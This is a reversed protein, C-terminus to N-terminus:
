PGFWFKKYFFEYLEHWYLVKMVYFNCYYDNCFTLFPNHVAAVMVIIHALWNRQLPAMDVKRSIFDSGAKPIPLPDYPVLPTTQYLGSVFPTTQYLCFLMFISRFANIKIFLKGFRQFFCCFHRNWFLYFDYWSFCLINGIIFNSNSRNTIMEQHRYPLM